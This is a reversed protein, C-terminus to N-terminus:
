TSILNVHGRMVVPDTVAYCKTTPSLEPSPYPHKELIVDRIEFGNEPQFIRFFLEPSFQYFGHGAHNNCMTFIFISGGQKVMNMCNAIAVPFNFVHELSGGDIVADFKEYYQPALPHNMDHVISCDEYDSCDVSSVNRAGLFLEFLNDVYQEHSLNSVDEKFGIYRALKEIQQQSLYQQQHGITVIRDFSVNNKKAKCLLAANNFIIGM